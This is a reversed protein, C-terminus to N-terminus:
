PEGAYLRPVSGVDSSQIAGVASAALVSDGYCLFNILEAALIQVETSTFTGKPVSMTFQVYAKALKDTDGIEKLFSVRVNSRQTPIVGNENSASHAITLETLGGDDGARVTRQGNNSILATVITDADVANRYLQTTNNFM